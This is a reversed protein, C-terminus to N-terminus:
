VHVAGRWVFHNGLILKPVLIGFIASGGEATDPQFRLRADQLNSM